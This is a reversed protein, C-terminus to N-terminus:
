VKANKNVKELKEVVSELEKETYRLKRHYEEKEMELASELDKRLQELVITQIKGIKEKANPDTELIVDEFPIYLMSYNALHTYGPRQFAVRARTQDLYDIVGNCVDGNGDVLLVKNHEKFRPM